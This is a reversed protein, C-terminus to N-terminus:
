IKIKNLENALLIANQTSKKGVYRLFQVETSHGTASILLSTNIEGYYNTAFSRRGIHSTVAKYKEIEIFEYRNTEKNRKFVSIKNEIKASKCVKKILRNYIVENSDKNKSFFPPFFGKRKELIKKVENTLPIHVQAKTKEQTIDLFLMDQIKVINKESFKLFDSIRQATFCSIILWDRAIDEDAKELKVNIIKKIEEFNLHIHEVNKYSLGKTILNYEENVKLGKDIAFNCITKIVKLTKVKTNHAYNCDDMWKQFNYSFNKDINNIYIEGYINEYNNIRKQFVKLKKITSNAIQTNKFKFYEDFLDYLKTSIDSKINIINPNILNNLDSKNIEIESNNFKSIILNKIRQLETNIFILNNNYSNLKQKEIEDLGKSTKKLVAQGNSFDLPNVILNSKVKLDFDRGNKIRFYIRSPNKKSQVLFNITM